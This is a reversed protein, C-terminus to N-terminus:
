AKSNQLIYWIDAIFPLLGPIVWLSASVLAQIVLLPPFM